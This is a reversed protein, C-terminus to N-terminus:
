TGRPTLRRYRRGPADGPRWPAGHIPDIVELFRWARMDRDASLLERVGHERLLLATEFGAVLGPGEGTRGALLERAVAAHRDTPGLFRLSPSTGLQDLFALAEEPRAPRGVAHPHTVLALFEHAVSWPVAWPRGGNALAELVQSARPHEPTGRNAAWALISTDVAIM